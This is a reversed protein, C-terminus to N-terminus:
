CRELILERFKREFNLNDEKSRKPIKTYKRYKRRMEQNLHRRMLLEDICDETYCWGNQHIAIAKKGLALAAVGYDQTVVIDGEKTHNILVLDAADKGEDVTIITAYNDQLEHNINKIMIVEIHYEKAVKLVIDKVPCGDADILVKMIERDM